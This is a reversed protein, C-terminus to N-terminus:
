IGVKCGLQFLFSPSGFCILVKAVDEELQLFLPTGNM